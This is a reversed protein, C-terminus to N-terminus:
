CNNKIKQEISTTSWGATFPLSLVKGGNAIVLSSGVIDEVKWDGGKVLLDPLLAEILNYPTDESFPIVADVSQLAALVMMRQELPNIPRSPGKLRSVSDDSNVGIVLFDGLNRAEELYCVHGVHLIDFCGNTFVIKKDITHLKAIEERLIDIDHYIKSSLTQV